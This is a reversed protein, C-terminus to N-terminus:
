FLFCVPGNVLMLLQRFVEQGNKDTEEQVLVTVVSLEM